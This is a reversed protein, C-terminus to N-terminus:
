PDVRLVPGDGSMPVARGIVHVPVDDGCASKLEALQQPSVGALLGGSTQPDFLASWAPREPLDANGPQIGSEVHRNAPAMTSVVGAAALEVFGNLLPLRNLQIEASLQSAQLMEFLHGALGFGTVDTVASAGVQRLATAAAQNSTLMSQLLADMWEGRTRAQPIGALLTGTGLPRTLVLLDEPRLGGKTLPEQGDLTGLVTFGISLESAEITHGGLLEVEAADFERLSGSLLQFLVDAQRAPAGLPLQVSAVAATPRAGTAWLDSMANLAAVRGTLWWDDIFPQFFDVSILDPTGPATVIRAADEAHDLARHGRSVGGSRVDRIRDFAAQLVSAGAKGGCGRCRMQISPATDTTAMPRPSMPRYEQYMRMFRRDIRDKLHWCWRGQAAIRKYNLFAGGQGDALLSLFGSQPRYRILPRNEFYRRLNQWLIPGERVAYVGSRAVPSEVLSASDGVVFVPDGSVSQLTQDVACFGDASRPLSSRRILPLPAAGTVWIVLDAALLEGSSLVLQGPQVQDVRVGTRQRIGRREFERAVRRVTGPQYGRLIAPGADILSIEAAVTNRRLVADLCFCIEVGAAGGGVVAVRVPADPSEGRGDARLAELRDSLRNRFTAMPKVPLFSSVDRWEEAGGPMSGVGISAADFRVEPRERFCVVRREGDVRVAEDIILRVGAPAAFRWLDIEMDEPEYLGALTGPLMGSYTARSFPSILTLRADPIPNMRWMRVVHMNTHGAGILVIERSFLQDDM